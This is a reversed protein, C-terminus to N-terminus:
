DSEEEASEKKKELTQQFDWVVSAAKKFPLRDFVRDNQFMTPRLNVPFEDSNSPVSTKEQDLIEPEEERVRPTVATKVVEMRAKKSAVQVLKEAAPRRTRATDRLETPLPSTPAPAEARRGSGLEDVALCVLDRTDDAMDSVNLDDEDRRAAPIGDEDDPSM